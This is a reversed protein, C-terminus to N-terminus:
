REVGATARAFLFERVAARRLDDVADFGLSRAHRVVDEPGPVPVQLFTQFLWQWLEAESLGTDALTASALGLGALVERKSRVRAEVAGLSGKWRLQDPIRRRVEGQLALEARRLGAQERFFRSRELDEGIKQQALWRDIDAAELIGREAFFETMVHGAADESVERAFGARIALARSLAGFHVSWFGGALKLEDLLDDVSAGEAAVSAADLHMDDVEAQLASWADTHSLVFATGIPSTGTGGTAAIADLMQLADLRKRDVRGKPLWTTLSARESPSLADGVRELLAPYSREPYYLNKAVALLMRATAGSVVAQQEAAQLTWRINVMAESIPRWGADASAHAVAVEDDDELLGGRFAQFIEGVGIMGFDALEAARLAGMSAAGFVQIGESIAFLVEKHWVAPTSDFFGDVIGIITPKARAARLVDGRAAPGRVECSPLVSRVQEPPLTPGAFLIISV